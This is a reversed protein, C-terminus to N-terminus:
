EPTVRRSALLGGTGRGRLWVSLTNCLASVTGAGDGGVGGIIGVGDVGGMGRGLCPEPLLPLGRTEEELEM